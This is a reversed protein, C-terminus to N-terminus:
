KSQVQAAAAAALWPKIVVGWLKFIAFAPIVLM